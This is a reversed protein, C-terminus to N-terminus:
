QIREEKRFSTRSEVEEPMRLQRAFDARFIECDLCVCAETGREVLDTDKNEERLADLLSPITWPNCRLWM